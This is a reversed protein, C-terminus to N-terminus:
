STEVILYLEQYGFISRRKKKEFISVVQSGGSKWILITHPLPFGSSVDHALVSCRLRLSIWQPPGLFLKFILHGSLRSHSQNHGESTVSFSCAYVTLLTTGLLSLSHYCWFVINGHFSSSECPRMELAVSLWDSGLSLSDADQQSNVSLNDLEVLAARFVQMYHSYQISETTLIYM